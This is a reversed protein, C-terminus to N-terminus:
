TRRSHLNTYVQFGSNMECYNPGNMELVNLVVKVSDAFLGGKMRFPYWDSSQYGDEQTWNLQMSHYWAM